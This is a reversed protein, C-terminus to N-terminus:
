VKGIVTYFWLIALSAVVAVIHALSTASGRASLRSALAWLGAVLLGGGLAVLNKGVLLFVVVALIGFLVALTFDITAVVQAAITM